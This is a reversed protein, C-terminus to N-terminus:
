KLTDKRIGYKLGNNNEKILLVYGNTYWRQLGNKEEKKSFVVRKNKGECQQILKTAKEMIRNYAQSGNGEETYENYLEIM